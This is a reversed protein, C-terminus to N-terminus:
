IHLPAAAFPFSVRPQGHQGLQQLWLLWLLLGLTRPCQGFLSTDFQGDRLTFYGLLAPVLAAAGHPLQLSGTDVGTGLATGDSQGM